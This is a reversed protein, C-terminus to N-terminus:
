LVSVTVSAPREILHTGVLAKDLKYVEVLANEM